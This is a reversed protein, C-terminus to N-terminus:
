RSFYLRQWINLRRASVQISQGPDDLTDLPINQDAIHLTHAATHGILMHFDPMPREVGDVRLGGTELRSLIQGYELVDPLGAGFSEFELAVLVIQGDRREYIERVPTQHLSHIHSLSFTEGERLVATYLPRNTQANTLVLYPSRIFLSLVGLSLLVICVILWHTRRNKQRNM